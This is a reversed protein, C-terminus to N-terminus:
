NLNRVPLPVNCIGIRDAPDVFWEEARYRRAEVLQAFTETDTRLLEVQFREEPPLESGLRISSIRVHEGDDEYFGLGGTGRPLTTLHEIGGIARGVLTVNRDLHRPSHGTVVYLEAGNGSDPAEGRGVGLMGYCHTLWARGAPGDRGVPFGNSFGVEAAYADRSELMAFPLDAAARFFEPEISASADGFARADDGGAAPDGWQVVYNEQVRVISLGDFYRSEVLKRINEITAPAFQPALEFVVRGGAIELYLSNAPELPRWDSPASAELVASMTPRQQAAAAVAFFLLGAVFLRL